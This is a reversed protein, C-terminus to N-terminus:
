FFQSLWDRFTFLVTVMILSWCAITLALCRLVKRKNPYYAALIFAGVPISFLVPTLVVLGWFGYNSKIHALRRSRKTFVPRRRQVFFINKNRLYQVLRGWVFVFFAAGTIGGFTTILYIVIPSLEKAFVAVPFTM